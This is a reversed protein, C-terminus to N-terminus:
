AGDMGDNARVRDCAPLGDESYPMMDLADVPQRLLLAPSQQIPKHTQNDFVVIQLDPMLPPIRVIKTLKNETNRFQTTSARQYTASMRWSNPIITAHVMGGRRVVFAQTIPCPLTGDTQPLPRVQIWITLRPPLRQPQSLSLIQRRSPILKFVGFPQLLTRQRRSTTIASDVGHCQISSPTPMDHRSPKTVDFDSHSENEFSSTKINIRQLKSFGLWCLYIEDYAPWSFNFTCKRTRLCSIVLISYMACVGSSFEIKADM